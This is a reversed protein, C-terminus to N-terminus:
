LSAPPYGVAQAIEQTYKFNDCISDASMTWNFIGALGEYQELSPFGANCGESNIGWAIQKKSYGLATINDPLSGGYCQCNILDFCLMNNSTIYPSGFAPTITMFYPKMDQVSAEDLANRINQIVKNFNDQTISGSSRGISEDDIDFGDLGYQRILAVVSVPFNNTGSTLDDSIYTWDNKGWGLSILIKINNNVQRAISVLNPLRIPEDPQGQELQLAAGSGNGVPYAHAFAVFLASVKNFPMTQTPPIYQNVGSNYIPYYSGAYPTPFPVRNM